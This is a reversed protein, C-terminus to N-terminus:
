VFRILCGPPSYAYCHINAYEHHLLIAVLAAVGGALSHGVTVIRYDNTGREQVHVLLTYLM